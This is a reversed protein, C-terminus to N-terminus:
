AVVDGVISERNDGAAGACVDAFSLQWSKGLRKHVLFAVVQAKIGCPLQVQETADAM